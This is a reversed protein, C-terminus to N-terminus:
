INPRIANLDGAWVELVEGTSQRLLLQGADGLSIALGEKKEAGEGVSVHKGMHLCRNTWPERVSLFGDLRWRDIWLGLCPLLENLIQKVEYTVGTEIFMSTAQCPILQASHSDMNVNLGVGVVIDDKTIREALIGCIKHGEVLLDNPWKTTADVGYKQVFEAVALSVAMPLSVVHRFSVKGRLLFSFTLDRGPQSCWTRGLRGRGSTQSHAAIVYGDTAFLPKQSIAALTSNTSALETHWEPKQWKM